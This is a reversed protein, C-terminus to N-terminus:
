GESVGDLLNFIRHILDDTLDFGEEKYILDSAMCPFPDVEGLDAATIKGGQILTSALGEWARRIGDLREQRCPLSTKYAEVITMSRETVVAEQDRAVKVLKEWLAKNGAKVASLEEQLKAKKEQTVDLQSSKMSLQVRLAEVEEDWQHLQRGKELVQEETRLTTNLAVPLRALITAVRNAFGSYLEPTSTRELEGGPGKVGSRERPGSRGRRLPRLKQERNARHRCDIKQRGRENEGGDKHGLEALTKRDDAADEPSSVVDVTIGGCAPELIEIVEEEEVETIERSLQTAPPQGRRARKILVMGPPPTVEKFITYGLAKAHLSVDNRVYRLFNKLPWSQGKLRELSKLTDAGAM